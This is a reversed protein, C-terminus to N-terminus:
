DTSPRLSVKGFDGLPMVVLLKDFFFLFIRLIRHHMKFEIGPEFLLFLLIVFGLFRLIKIIKSFREGFRFFNVRQIDFSSLHDLFNIRMLRLDIFFDMLTCILALDTRQLWTDILKNLM